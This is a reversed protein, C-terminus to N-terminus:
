TATTARRVHLLQGRRRNAFACQADRLDRIDAATRCVPIARRRLRQRTSTPPTLARNDTFFHNGWWRRSYQVDVAVRTCVEHQVGVSFQWDYPRIGWGHLVDPQRDDHQVPQRLESEAV